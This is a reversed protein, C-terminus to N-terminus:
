SAAEEQGAGPRQDALARQAKWAARDRVLEECTERDLGQTVVERMSKVGLTEAVEAASVGLDRAFAFFAKRAAEDNAWEGDAEPDPMGHRLPLAIIEGTTPDVDLGADAGDEEWEPEQATPEVRGALLAGGAGYGAVAETKLAQLRAILYEATPAIKVLWHASRGKAGRADTTNIMEQVRSLTFGVGMLGKDSGAAQRELIVEELVTNLHLIDYVSTTVLTVLGVHGAEWLEPLIVSLRGYCKAGKAADGQPQPRKEASHPDAVYGGREDRWAVLYEGDGRWVLRGAGDWLEVWNGFNRGADPYLFYVQLSRPAQGYAAVFAERVEPTAGSFRFHDLEKPFGKGQVEEKAQGKHLKGLTPLAPRIGNGMLRKIPM